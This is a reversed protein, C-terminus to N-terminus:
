SKAKKAEGRELLKKLTTSSAREIKRHLSRGQADMTVMAELDCAILEWLADAEGFEDTFHVGTVKEISHALVCGAGGVPQLYACGHEKCARRTEDGMGGKGIIVGIGHNKIVAPMYPEMRISTTPGASRVQWVGGNNKMVPGCHYIVGDKLNVPCKGGAALHKLLRDRGTFVLGSVKVVDGLKLKAVKETTFPYEIAKVSMFM